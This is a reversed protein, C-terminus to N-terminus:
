KTLYLTQATWPPAVYVSKLTMTNNTVALVQFDTSSTCDITTGNLVYATNSGNSWTLMSGTFDMTGQNLMYNTGNPGSFHVSDVSWFGVHLNM